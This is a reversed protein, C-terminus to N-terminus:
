LDYIQETESQSETKRDVFWASKEAQMKGLFDTTDETWLSQATRGKLM